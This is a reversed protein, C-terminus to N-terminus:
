ADPRPDQWNVEGINTWTDSSGSNRYRAWYSVSTNPSSSITYTLNTSVLTSYSSDSYWEAEIQQGPNDRRDITLTWDGLVSANSQPPNFAAGFRDPTLSLALQVLGTGAAPVSGSIVSFDVVYPDTDGDAPRDPETYDRYWVYTSVTPIGIAYPGDVSIGVYAEANNTPHDTYWEVGTITAAEGSGGDLVTAQVQWASVDRNVIAGALDGMDAFSITAYALAPSDYITPLPEFPNTWTATNILYDRMGVGSAAGTVHNRFSQGSTGAYGSAKILERLNYAM